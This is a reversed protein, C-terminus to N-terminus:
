NQAHYMKSNEIAKKISDFKLTQGNDFVLYLFIEGLAVHVKLDPLHEVKMDPEVEWVRKQGQVIATSEDLKKWCHSMHVFFGGVAIESFKM